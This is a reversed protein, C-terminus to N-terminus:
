AELTLTLEFRVREAAYLEVPWWVLLCVGQTCVDLGRPTRGVTRVPAHWARVPQPSRLVLRWGRAGDVLAYTDNEGHEAAFRPDVRAGGADLWVDPGLGDLGLDLAVAFRSRVTEHFRNALEYRVQVAADDRAFAYRKLVRVLRLGNGDSVNGDRGLGLVV